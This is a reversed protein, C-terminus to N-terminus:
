KKLHFINGHKFERGHARLVGPTLRTIAHISVCCMRYDVGGCIEEWRPIVHVESFSGSDLVDANEISIVVTLDCIEYLDLQPVCKDLHDHRALKGAEILKCSVFELRM